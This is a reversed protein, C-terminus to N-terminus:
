AKGEQGVLIDSDGPDLIVMTSCRFLKGCATGLEIQEFPRNAQGRGELGGFSSREPLVEHAEENVGLQTERLLRKVLNDERGFLIASINVRM